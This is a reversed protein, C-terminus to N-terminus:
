VIEGKPMTLREAAIKLFPHKLLQEATPRQEADMTLCQEVFDNFGESWDKPSQKEIESVFRFFVVFVLQVKLRAGKTKVQERIEERNLGKYPPV